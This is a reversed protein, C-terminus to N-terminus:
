LQIQATYQRSHNDLNNDDKKKRLLKHGNEIDSNSVM